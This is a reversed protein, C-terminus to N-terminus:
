ARAEGGSVRRKPPPMVRESFVKRSLAPDKSPKGEGTEVRERFEGLDLLKGGGHPGPPIVEGIENRPPRLQEVDPAKVGAGFMREVFVEADADVDVRESRIDRIEERVRVRTEEFRTKESIAELFTVNGDEKATAVFYGVMANRADAFVSNAGIDVFLAHYFSSLTIPKATLWPVRIRADKSRAASRARSFRDQLEKVAAERVGARKCEKALHVLTKEIPTNLRALTAFALQQQTYDFDDCAQVLQTVMSDALRRVSRLFTNDDSTLGQQKSLRRYGKVLTNFSDRIAEIRDLSGPQTKHYRAVAAIFREREQTTLVPGETKVVASKIGPAPRPSGTSVTRKPAPLAM